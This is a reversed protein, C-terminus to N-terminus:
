ASQAMPGRGVPATSAVASSMGSRKRTGLINKRPMSFKFVPSATILRRYGSVPRGDVTTRGYSAVRGARTDVDAFFPAIIAASTAKLGFSPPSASTTFTISEARLSSRTSDYLKVLM